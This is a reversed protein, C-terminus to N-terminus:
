QMWTPLVSRVLAAPLNVMFTRQDDLARLRAQSPGSSLALLGSALSRQGVELAGRNLHCQRGAPRHRRQSTLMLGAPLCDQPRLPRPLLGLRRQFRRQVRAPKTNFGDGFDIPSHERLEAARRALDSLLAGNM